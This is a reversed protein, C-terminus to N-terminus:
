AQRGCALGGELGQKALPMGISNGQLDTAVCTGWASLRPPPKICHVVLVRRHSFWLGLCDLELVVCRGREADVGDLEVTDVSFAPPTYDKLQIAKAQPERM